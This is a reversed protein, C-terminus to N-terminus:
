LVSYVESVFTEVIMLVARPMQAARTSCEEVLVAIAAAGPKVPRRPADGAVLTAPGSRKTREVM